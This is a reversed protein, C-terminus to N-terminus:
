CILLITLRAETFWKTETGELRAKRLFSDTRNSENRNRVKRCNQPETRNPFNCKGTRRLEAQAKRVRRPETRNPETRNRTRNRGIRKPKKNRGAFCCSVIRYVCICLFSYYIYIYIYVHKYICMYMCVYISYM